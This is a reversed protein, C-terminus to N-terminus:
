AAPLIVSATREAVVQIPVIEGPAAIGNLELLEPAVLLVRNVLGDFTEAEATLPIDDNHATWVGAETDWEAHVVFSTAMDQIGKNDMSTIRQGNSMCSPEGVWGAAVNAAAIVKFAKDGGGPLRSSASL